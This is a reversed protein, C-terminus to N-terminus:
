EGRREINSPSVGHRPGDDIRRHRAEEQFVEDLTELIAAEAVAMTQDPHFLRVHQAAAIVMISVFGDEIAPQLIAGVIENVIARLVGYELDVPRHHALQM